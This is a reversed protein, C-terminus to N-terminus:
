CYKKKDFQLKYSPEDSLLQKTLLLGEITETGLHNRTKTEILNVASSIREVAASSHPLSLLATVFQLLTPYLSQGDLDQACNVQHWFLETDEASSELLDDNM